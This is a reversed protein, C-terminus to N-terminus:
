QHSLLRRPAESLNLFFSLLFVSVVSAAAQLCFIDIRVQDDDEEQDSNPDQRPSSQHDDQAVSSSSGDIKKKVFVFIEIYIYIYLYINPNIRCFDKKYQPKKRGDIPDRIGSPSFPNQGNWSDNM